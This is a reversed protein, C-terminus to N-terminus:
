DESELGVGTKFDTDCIGTNFDTDCFGTNFDTDCVGTNFDTDCFGTNFDADCVGTNYDTDRFLEEIDCRRSELNWFKEAPVSLAYVRFSFFFPLFFARGRGM